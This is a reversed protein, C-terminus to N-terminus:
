TQTKEHDDNELYRKTLKRHPIITKLFLTNESEKVFPVAYVYENVQVAYIRQNPYKHQNPHDFIDLVAGDNIASIIEEFSINREEILKRNKDDSFNYTITQNILYM